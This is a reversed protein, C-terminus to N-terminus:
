LPNDDEECAVPEGTCSGNQCADALHLQQWGFVPSWGRPRDADKERLATMRPAPTTTRANFPREMANRCRATEDACAKGNMANPTPKLTAYPMRLDRPKTRRPAPTGMMANSADACARREGTPRRSKEMKSWQIPQIVAAEELMGMCEVLGLM